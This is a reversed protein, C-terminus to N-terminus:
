GPFRVYLYDGKPPLPTVYATVVWNEEKGYDIVVLVYLEKYRSHCDRRCNVRREIGRKKARGHPRVVVDPDSIAIKLADEQGVMETAHGEVIHEWQKQRLQVTRGRGDAVEFRVPSGM